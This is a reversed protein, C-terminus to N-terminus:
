RNLGISISTRADLLRYAASQKHQYRAAVTAIFFIKKAISALLQGSSRPSIQTALHAVLGRHVLNNSKKCLM